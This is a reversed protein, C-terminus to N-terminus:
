QQAALRATEEEEALRAAQDAALRAEEEEADLM